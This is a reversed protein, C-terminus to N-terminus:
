NVNGNVDGANEGANSTTQKRFIAMRVTHNQNVNGKHSFITFM